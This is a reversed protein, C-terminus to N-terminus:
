AGIRVHIRDSRLKKMMSGLSHGSADQFVCMIGDTKIRRSLVKAPTEEETMVSLVELDDFLRGLSVVAPLTGKEKKVM